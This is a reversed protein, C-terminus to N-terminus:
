AARRREPKAVVGRPQYMLGRHFLCYAGDGHVSGGCYLSEATPKDGYHEWLPFACQDAGRNELKVPRCDPASPPAPYREAREVKPAMPVVRTPEPKTKAGRRLPFMSRFNITKMKVAAESRGIAAGIEAMTAGALWMTKATQLQEAPWANPSARGRPWGGKAKATGPPKKPFLDRNRHMIGIISNRSRGMAAGIQGASMGMQFLAHAKDLDAQTWAESLGHGRPM